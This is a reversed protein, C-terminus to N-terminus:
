TKILVKEIAAKIENIQDVSDIKQGEFNSVYFVDVVQDVKTAIKAVRIDLGCRYLTDTIKFLLGPFNYTFVEIITFFSSSKNDVNIRHPRALDHPKSAKYYSIKKDLAEGLNLKGSLATELNKKAKIWKEDEFIQDRPPTVKFIDLAINNKWTYAQTDLIDLSNLTFIGAIRSFLGPRDKACITVTRTNSDHAKIVNWVFDAKGLSKYLRIHELMDQAPTYLLYRPSMVNFLAKLDQSPLLASTLDFLERKKKEIIKVAEETALEGKELVRLIELFLNKLLASTWSSWAKPGTSISDAVTLLYLMELRKVDKIKSACSIATQEDNIDRRTATKILFLHNEVLFVVTEIDAPKLHKATLISRVMLAGRHSHGTGPERKGVDHLLAAWLMLKKDTLQKYLKGYLPDNSTDKSTGFNKIAQVTRLMHKDVPYLHYEDYQFRNVIGKIEPIFRVLFGTSLMENLVNLTPAYTTLIKQFSKVASVSSRFDDNILYAFDKVLRKAEAGLPINLRASEEFIKILLDPSSLINEPTKFNLRNKIISLGNVKVQKTPKTKLRSRKIYEQEYLFMLLQEKLLEMQSHLQGLFREVPEQGDKKKFHLNKALKMQYEFYLYDCKRGALHQLRNRINWIFSLANTLANYEEHSLYGYYELDRPQKIDSKIKAIWLMTHYDRLGGLGEKLNPELLYTSDGFRQHRERNNKILTSIIKKSQKSLIKKRVLEMLESYLSSIGCIFRADLISTLVEIDKKALSVCEKLSRVAYGIDFGIDWLPYLIERILNDARDPIEKNFLFLLDIDSHICQEQRGYGGVAIIACPNEIADTEQGILSTEYGECFYEDLIRTHQKLFAPEKGKLFSSILSERK